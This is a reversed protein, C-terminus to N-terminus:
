ESCNSCALQVNIPADAPYRLMVDRQYEGSKGSPVAAPGELRYRKPGIQVVVKVDIADVTARNGVVVRVSLLKDIEGEAWVKAPGHLLVLEARPVHESRHGLLGGNLFLFPLVLAFFVLGLTIKAGHEILWTPVKSPTKQYRALGVDLPDDTRRPIKREDNM